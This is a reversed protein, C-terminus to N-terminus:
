DDSEDEILGLERAEEYTLSDGEGEHKLSTESASQWFDDAGREDLDQAAAELDDPNIDRNESESVPEEWREQGTPELGQSAPEAEELLVLIIDATRRGFHMVAGLQGAEEAGQHVIVLGHKEGVNILYLDYTDGDLLHFNTPAKAGLRQNVTLSARHASMLPLLCRSIDVGVADGAQVLQEGREDVLYVAEAGIQRRLDAAHEKLRRNTQELGEAAKEDAVVLAAEVIELFLNTGIPKPLFAVVGL